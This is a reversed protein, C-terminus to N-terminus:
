IKTYEHKSFWIQFEDSWAQDNSNIKSTEIFGKELSESLAKLKRIAYLSDAISSDFLNSETPIGDLIESKILQIKM